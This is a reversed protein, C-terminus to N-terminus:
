YFQYIKLVISIMFITISKQFPSLMKTIVPGFAVRNANCKKTNGMIGLTKYRSSDQLIMLVRLLELNQTKNTVVDLNVYEFHNLNGLINSM